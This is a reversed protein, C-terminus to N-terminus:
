YANYDNIISITKNAVASGLSVYLKKDGIIFFEEKARTAAVNMINPDSVAWKAAGSSNSDAGLVFYVIKAEKGQFTHVTGVNTPKGNERKTFNIKDLVGALKSAVNKFPSIVYIENALDPNENLRIVILKKLLDAQEKVFKDNAKGMSDLWLSKGQAKDKEKGQVMLGGYSIENSITFMPYNSRRHVWLPIGIWEEDNKRYGFQSTDDVITQTSADASVFKEDVKYQKGILNLVKSDLSLVPRIQSPDGVVMVKKSRFIAGVSAQPLAQGAEDIFLNGLSNEKLNKFMRGFSAFTTSVVPVTFNLWQWSELILQHGNEKAIYESQKNWIIRAAKINKRNEYLFQKRVKLASIFLESQLIRYEKTFWPNSLQLEEYSLSFDIEKIGTQSKIKELSEIEEELKRLENNRTTLWQNFVSMRDQYQKQIHEIKDAIIKLENDFHTCDNLVKSKQQTLHNLHKNASNLDMFYQEVKSKNFIKQFWLFSPKQSTVVNFNREAQAQENTLNELEISANSLSSQINISKQKLSEIEAKAEKEQIILDTRKKKEEKEFESIQEKQKAKLKRLYYIKESYEQVKDRQIKLENYLRSFERYVDPNSQYNEELDKEIAEINLILKNINISAGGEISFIGWNEENLLERKINRNEGFGEGILKSNSIEKFYNAEVLQNQFNEYIKETKPLENVINQVAGNNSSAVIINKDSIAQPLVGLKANRWYVLSGQIKKNSLQSIELAQQVVLDAFIDKLLTTKGTGPPGNVSRIDNEDNLALNVAVQQMFSLPYEPNSPFRGLPYNKPQLIEEFIEVNFHESEKKSDLNKRYGAFGNFYRNLNENNLIKAKKLDEIFFSHLNIDENDLNQVFKYRFNEVKVNYKQILDTITTNFDEDFKRNLEERFLNEVKIFDEPLNGHERIYGSMTLFLKDAIFNLQNDFYLAFTFKESNSVEEYTKAILYKERLIDVVEQFDFIGFYLVLGSKKFVKDSINKQEKQNTIFDLFFMKWNDENTHLSKLSKEKKNISGESLQEITIWANLIDERKNM